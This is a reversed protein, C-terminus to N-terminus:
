ASGAVKSKEILYFFARGRMEFELKGALRIHMLECDSIKLAKKAQKSSCWVLNKSLKSDDSM